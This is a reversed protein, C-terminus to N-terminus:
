KKVENKERAKMRLYADIFEDIEGDMVAQVNGTEYGTRLDKVMQYPHFVYSRIQNGWAIEKKEPTIGKKEEEHIRKYYEYLRARLIKLAMDRNQHQSRESQCSVTIGTPIHTIRVASETKNVYQGGAGSARFTEVKLDKPDLDVDITDDIEPVVTVAAFSTHRRKNSDFPSIRVLRHIGSESKLYGYAYPGIIHVTAEKIGADEAAQHDVIEYKYGKRELWRLYMRLLMAAWDQSETGGAGPHISLFANHDDFEDSLLKRLELEDLEKELSDLEEKVENIMDEDAEEEALASFELLENAKRQINEIQSIERKLSSLKSSLMIGREKDTWVSSSELQKEIDEAEKKKVGIGFNDAIEKVRLAVQEAREFLEGM